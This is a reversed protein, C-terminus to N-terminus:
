IFVYLYNSLLFCPHCCGYTASSNSITHFIYSSCFISITTSFIAIGHKVKKGKTAQGVSLISLSYISMYSLFTCLFILVRDWTSALFIVNGTFTVSLRVYMCVSSRVYFINLLKSLLLIVLILSLSNLSILLCVFFLRFCIM